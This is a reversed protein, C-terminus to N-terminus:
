KNLRIDAQLPVLFKSHEEKVEFVGQSKETWSSIVSWQDIDYHEKKNLKDFPLAAPVKIDAVPKVDDDSHKDLESNYRTSTPRTNKIYQATVIVRHYRYIAQQAEKNVHIQISLEAEQTAHEIVADTGEFTGSLPSPGEFRLTTRSFAVGDEDIQPPILLKCHSFGPEPCDIGKPYQERFSLSLESKGRFILEIWDKGDEDTGFSTGRQQKWTASSGKYEPQPM